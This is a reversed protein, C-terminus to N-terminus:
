AWTLPIHVSTIHAVEMGNGEGDDSLSRTGGPGASEKVMKQASCPCSGLGAKVYLHPYHGQPYHSLRMPHVLTPWKPVVVQSLSLFAWRRFTVADQRSETVSVYRCVASTELSSCGSAAQDWGEGEEGMVEDLVSPLCWLMCLVSSSPLCSPTPPTFIPLGSWFCYFAESATTRVLVPGLGLFLVLPLASLSAPNELASPLRTAVTRLSPSPPGSSLIFPSQVM